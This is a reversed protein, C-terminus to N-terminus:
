MIVPVNKIKKARTMYDLTNGTEDAHLDALSITAVISTKTTGGLSDSLLRTLKSDRYPIFSTGDVLANIM